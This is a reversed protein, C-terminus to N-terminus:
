RAPWADVVQPVAEGDGAQEVGVRAIPVDVPSKGQQGGIEAMAAGGAGVPIQRGCGFQENGRNVNRGFPMVGVISSSAM